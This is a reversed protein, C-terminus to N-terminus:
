KSQITGLKTFDSSFLWHLSDLKPSKCLLFWPPRTSLKMLIAKDSFVNEGYKQMQQPRIEM